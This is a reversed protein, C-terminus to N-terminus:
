NIESVRMAENVLRNIKMTIDTMVSAVVSFERGSEGARAAIVQANLSVIGAEKAIRQIDTMLDRQQKLGIKARRKSENEFAQTVLSLSNVIPNAINGLEAIHNKLQFSNKACDALTKEALSIFLKIQKDSESPGFYVTKLEDFFVGPFEQNGHVLIAHTEKFLNLSDEAIRSAEPHGQSALIVNLIIRQSLMRQRGSLNILSSIISSSVLKNPSKSLISNM